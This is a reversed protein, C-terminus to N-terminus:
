LGSDIQKFPSTAYWAQWNACVEEYAQLDDNAILSAQVDQQEVFSVSLGGSVHWAIHCHFLWNGPNDTKFALVLYGLAPLMTVDRRVPNNFNLTGLDLLPDFITTLGALEGTPLLALLQALSLPVNLPASRGLVYFDHGHLHMPHPIPSLNQIVWFSWADAEDVVVVNDNQPFGNGAMVYDLVPMEWDVRMSSANVFWAVTQSLPPISLTVPLNDSVAMAPTFENSPVTNAHYPVWDNQDSCLSDAPKTGPTTPLSDDAGDYRFIAAPAPNNSTGCLGTASLSVNFWYSGMGASADIIVDYRQGVGLFVTSVNKPVIPVFDTQIVQFQHGVLSVQYNHEISPNILRLRHRLGPTLTVVAYEGLSPTSPNINTGNFLVNDSAPPAANTQTMKVGQTETIHYYDTIPFVGLDIDYNATSPGNILISGIVGDAYQATFHSHFWSSGYQTARFTYTKSQGPALPCETVGNAGDQLNTHYQRIGHWHISTGNTTLSNTVHVVITDGWDAYIVPGPFQNNILMVEQKVVGDPGLWNDHEAIDFYYERVVGDPTETMYDTDINFGDSWCGRNNATNCEGPVRPLIGVAAPAALALSTLLSPILIGCLAIPSVM